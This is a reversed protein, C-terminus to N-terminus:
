GLLGQERWYQERKGEDVPWLEANNMAAVLEELSGYPGFYWDDNSGRKYGYVRHGSDFEYGFSRYLDTNGCSKWPCCKRMLKEPFADEGADVPITPQPILCDEYKM